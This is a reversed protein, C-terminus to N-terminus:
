NEGFTKDAYELAEKFSFEGIEKRNKGTTLFLTAMKSNDLYSQHYESIKAGSKYLNAVRLEYGDASAIGWLEEVYYSCFSNGIMLINKVKKEEIPAETTAEETTIEETTAQETVSPSSNDTTDSYGQPEAPACATLVMLLILIMSLLKLCPMKM